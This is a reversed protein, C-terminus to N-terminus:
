TSSYLLAPVASCPVASTGIAALRMERAFEEPDKRLAALAAEPMEFTLEVM